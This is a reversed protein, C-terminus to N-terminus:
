SKNGATQLSSHPFCSLVRCSLREDGYAGRRWASVRLIGSVQPPALDPAALCGAAVGAGM